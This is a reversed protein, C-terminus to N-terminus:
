KLQVSTINPEAAAAILAAMGARPGVIHLVVDQNESTIKAWRAIAALQAAQIGLPREGVASVFLGFTYEPDQAKIKSEGILFPDVALVRCGHDVLAQIDAAVSARGDDAVVIATAKRPADARTIELGPVTWNDGLKFARPTVVLDGVKNREVDSAIAQ